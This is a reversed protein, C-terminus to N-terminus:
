NGLVRRVEGSFYRIAEPLSPGGCVTLRAPLEIRRSAPFLAQLAPHQLLATGQDEARQEAGDLILLDPPTMVLEELSIYGGRNGGLAGGHDVLGVTAILDAVVTDGGTVYGRRQLVAATPGPQQQRRAQARSVDILQALLEGREPHGLLTAIERVQAMAADLSRVTEIELVRYGLQKLLARTAGRTNRGALILDPEYAIVSEASNANHPFGRAVDAYYSLTRDTAYNSLSAIQDPDALTLLLQDACANISVIRRPEPGTAAEQSAATGAPAALALAVLTARVQRAAFFTRLSRLM